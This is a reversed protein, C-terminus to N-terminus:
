CNVPERVSLSNITLVAVYNMTVMLSKAVEHISITRQLLTKSSIKIRNKKRGRTIFIYGHHEKQEAHTKAQKSAKKEDM